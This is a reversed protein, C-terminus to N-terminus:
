LRDVAGKLRSTDCHLYVQTTAISNHGLLEQIETLTAGKALLATAYSHRLTHAKVRREIKALRGLRNIRLQITRISTRGGKANAFLPGTKRAGIWARLPEVLREPIPVYRDKAGKGQAVFVQFQELDVQEVNLKSIESVRLGLLLGVMALMHDRAARGRLGQTKAAAIEAQGAVLVADIEIQRLFNPLKRAM